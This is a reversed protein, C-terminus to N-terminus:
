EITRVHVEITSEMMEAARRVHGWPSRKTHLYFLDEEGSADRIMNLSAIDASLMNTACIHGIDDQIIPGSNAICDCLRTINKMVNVAYVKKFRDHALVAAEALLEDFTAIRPSICNEPCVLVCNSCGSCWTSDFRPLDGDLRINETPCNDVCAGCQTCGGTYHPEGGSHIAGKTEKAMCGMGINKIAGGMGCAIHGKVHTLLFVGDSEIPDSALGYKMHKGNVTRSRNSIIIPADMAQETYGHEAATKMYGKINNRPSGYVVPTDFIYPSCGISNLVDIVGKTFAHQLFYQNGPEGMHLKVAIREGTSFITPLTSKLYAFLTEDEKIFAVDRQM